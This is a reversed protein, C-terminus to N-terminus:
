VFDSCLHCILIEVKVFKSYYQLMGHKKLFSHTWDLHQTGFVDKMSASDLGPILTPAMKLAEQATQMKELFTDVQFFSVSACGLEDALHTHLIYCSIRM